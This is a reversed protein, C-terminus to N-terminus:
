EKNNCKQCYFYDSLYLGLESELVEVLDIEENFFEMTDSLENEKDKFIGDSLNLTINENIELEIEDGCSDCCHIVSGKLIAELSVLKADIRKLFGEFVLNEFDLKFPYKVSGIKCFAIKM